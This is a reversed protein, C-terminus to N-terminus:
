DASDTISAKEKLRDVYSETAERQLQGALEREIDGRVDEFPVGQAPRKDNVKAIHYGFSTLFVDTVQGVDMGFVVDEFEQVMQGRPFYGLDGNGGPCDSHAAALEEFGKGADLEAKIKRIAELAEEHPTQGNVHKVIHSARV